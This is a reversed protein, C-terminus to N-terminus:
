LATASNEKFVKGGAVCPGFFDPISSGCGLFLLVLNHWPNNLEHYSPLLHYPHISSCWVGVIDVLKLWFLLFLVFWSFNFRCTYLRSSLSFWCFLIMWSSSCSINCLAPFALAQTREPTRSLGNPYVPLQFLQLSNRINAITWISEIKSWNDRYTYRRQFPFVYGYASCYPFDQSLYMSAIIRIM